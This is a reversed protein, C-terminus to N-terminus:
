RTVTPLKNWVQQGITVKGFTTKWDQDNFVSVGILDYLKGERLVYCPINYRIAWKLELFVGKGIFGSYESCIVNKCRQVIRLYKNMDDGLSLDRNPCLVNYGLSSILGREIIEQDTNYIQMSHAYYTHKSYNM